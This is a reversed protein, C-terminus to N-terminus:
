FWSKLKDMATFDNFDIKMPAIAIKKESIVTEDDKFADKIQTKIGGLWYYTRGKPDKRVDFDEVYRNRSLGCVEIGKCEELRVPPINVNLLTESPFDGLNIKEMIKDVSYSSLEMYDLHYSCLSFAISPIGNLCAEICAAVTGSYVVNMGTNSGHNIGSIVLDPKTECLESLALKICDAPTGNVAYAQDADIDHMEFARLPQHTTIKSSVSSQEQNPAVVTLHGYKRLVSAAVQIGKAFIGDDNSLLIRM